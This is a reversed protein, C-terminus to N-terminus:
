VQLNAHIVSSLIQPNELGSLILIQVKYEGEDIEDWKMSTESGSSAPLSGTRWEIYQVVGDQDAIQALVVYEQQISRFNELGLDLTVGGTETVSFSPGAARIWLM